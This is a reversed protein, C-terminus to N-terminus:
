ARPTAGGRSRSPRAPPERAARGPERPERAAPARARARERGRAGRHAPDPRLDPAAGAGGRAATPSRGSEPRRRDGPRAPELGRQVRLGLRVGRPDALEPRVVRQLQLDSVAAAIAAGLRWDAAAARRQAAGSMLAPAPPAREPHRHDALAADDPCSEGAEDLQGIREAFVGPCRGSSSRWSSAPSRRRRTSPPWSRKSRRSRSASSTSTSPPGSASASASCWSSKRSATPRSSVREVAPPHRATPARRALARRRERRRDDRAVGRRRPDRARRPRGSRGPGRHPELSRARLHGPGVARLQQGRVGAARARRLRRHEAPAVRRPERQGAALLRQERGDGRERGPGARAWAARLQFNRSLAREVLGVLEPDGFALWWRDPSALEADGAPLEDGGTQQFRDPVDVPAAGPNTQPHTPCARPAPARGLSAVLLPNPPEHRGRPRNAPRDPRPELAAFCCRRSMPSSTNVADVEGEPLPVPFTAARARIFTAGFLAGWISTSVRGPDIDTRISGDGM